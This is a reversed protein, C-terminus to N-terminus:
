VQASMLIRHQEKFDDHLSYHDQALRQRMDREHAIEERRMQVEIRLDDSLNEIAREIRDLRNDNGNDSM